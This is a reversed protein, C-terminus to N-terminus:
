QKNATNPLVAKFFDVASGETDFLETYLADFAPTEEFEKSLAGGNKVFRRGDSSIEGYAKLILEKFIRGMKAIDKAENDVEDINNGFKPCGLLFSRLEDYGNFNNKLADILLQKQNPYKKQFKDIAVFSDALVTLGHM